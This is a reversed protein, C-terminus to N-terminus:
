VKVIGLLAQYELIVIHDLWARQPLSSGILKMSAYRNSPGKRAKHDSWKDKPGRRREARLGQPFESILLEKIM